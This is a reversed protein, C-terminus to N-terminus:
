TTLMKWVQKFWHIKSKIKLFSKDEGVFYEWYFVFRASKIKRTEESFFLLIKYVYTSYFLPALKTFFLNSYLSFIYTTFITIYNKYLWSYINFFIVCLWNWFSIFENVLVQVDYFRAQCVRAFIFSFALFAIGLWIYGFNFMFRYFFFYLGYVVIINLWLCWYVGTRYLQRNRSYRGKNFIRNKRIYYFKQSKVADLSIYKSVSSESFRIYLNKKLLKLWAKNMSIYASPQFKLVLLHTLKSDVFFFNNVGLRKYAIIYKKKLNFLRTYYAALFKDFTNLSPFRPTTSFFVSSKLSRTYNFFDFTRNLNYIDFKKIGTTTSYAILTSLFVSSNSINKFNLPEFEYFSKCYYIFYSLYYKCTLYRLFVATEIMDNDQFINSTKLFFLQISFQELDDVYHGTHQSLGEYSILKYGYPGFYNRNLTFFYNNAFNYSM